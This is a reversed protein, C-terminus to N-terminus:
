IWGVLMMMMMMMMMLLLLLLLAAPRCSMVVNIVAVIFRLYYITVCGQLVSCLSASNQILSGQPCITLCPININCVSTRIICLLGCLYNICCAQSPVVLVTRSSIIRTHNFSLLRGDNYCVFRPQM